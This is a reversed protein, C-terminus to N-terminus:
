GVAGGRARSRGVSRQTPEGHFVTYAPSLKVELQRLTELEPARSGALALYSIDSPLLRAM